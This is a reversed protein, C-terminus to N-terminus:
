AVRARQEARWARVRAGYETRIRAIEDHDHIRLSAREQFHRSREAGLQEIRTADPSAKASEEAIESSLIANVDSIVERACEYAIAEDQTWLQM